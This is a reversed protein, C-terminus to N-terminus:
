RAKPSNMVQLPNPIGQFYIVGGGVAIGQFFHGGEGSGFSMHTICGIM